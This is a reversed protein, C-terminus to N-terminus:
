CWSYLCATPIAARGARLHEKAVLARQILSSRGFFDQGLRGLIHGGPVGFSGSAAALPPWLGGSSSQCLVFVRQCKRSDVQCPKVLSLHIM